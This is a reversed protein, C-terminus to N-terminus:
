PLFYLSYNGKDDAVIHDVVNRWLSRKDERALSNYHERFDSQLVIERVLSLDHKAEEQPIQALLKERDAIFQDKDILGDVYLDKLRDVKAMIAAKDPAKKRNKEKGKEASVKLLESTINDLLFSEIDSERIHKANPCRGNLAHYNCRYRLREITNGSWAGVMMKGCYACRILGSFLYVRKSRNQRYSRKDLMLQIADFREPAIIPECYNLNDRYRGAYMQNRLMRQVTVYVVNHGIDHLYEKVQYISGTREYIDFASRVIEADENPILHKDVVSYGFPVHSGLTEGRAVKAEFVVKIRESTRDAEAEGISLMINTKFRGASTITEYDEQIAKWGVKNRELIDEAQYYLKVSRFFRDLKTFVLADVKVAGSDLDDMFRALAPRKKYSKKGSIGADVYEAVIIHNNNSAWERLNDLQTDISLGHRAQDETSVRAYLAVRM